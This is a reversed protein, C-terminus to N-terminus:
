NLILGWNDIEIGHDDKDAEQYSRQLEKQIMELETIFYAAKAQGATDKGLTQWCAYAKIYRECPDPMAIHTTTYKGITVYDGTTPTQGTEGNTSTLTFDGTTTNYASYPVNYVKVVGDKDCLCFYGTTGILTTDDTAADLSLAALAGGSYTLSDVTGARLALTDVQREYTVRLTGQSNAPVPTILIQGNRRIYAYAYNNSYNNREILSHDYIKVYDRAQGTFSYEVNVIRTGLYVRDPIDYAEQNAVLNIIKEHQFLKPNTQLIIGQLNELGYNLARVFKADSIGTNSSYSQNGTDERCETILDGVYKM